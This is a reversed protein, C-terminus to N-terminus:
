IDTLFKFFDDVHERFEQDPRYDSYASTLAKQSIPKDRNYIKNSREFTTLTLGKKLKKFKELLYKLESLNMNFHVVSQDHDFNYAMVKYFDEYSTLEENVYEYKTLYGFLKKMVLTNLDLNFGSPESKLRSKALGSRKRMRLDIAFLFYICLCITIPILSWLRNEVNNYLFVSVILFPILLLVSLVLIGNNGKNLFSEMGSNVKERGVLFATLADVIKDIFRDM